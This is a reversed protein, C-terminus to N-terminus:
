TATIGAGANSYATVSWRVGDCYYEARDGVVSTGGVFNIQENAGVATAVAVGTRILVGQLLNNPGQIIANNAALATNIFVFHLGPAVPPLTYTRNATLAPILFVKGTDSASLPISTDPLTITQNSQVYGSM